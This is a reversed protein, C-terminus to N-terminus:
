DSANTASDGFSDTAYLNGDADFSRVITGKDDISRKKPRLAQEAAVRANAAERLQQELTANYQRAEELERQLDASKQAEIAAAQDKDATPADKQADEETGSKVAEEVKDKSTSAM